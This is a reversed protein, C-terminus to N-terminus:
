IHIGKESLTQTSVLIYRFTKQSHRKLDANHTDRFTDWQEVPITQCGLSSTGSRGGRHLNIGFMGEEFYDGKTGDRKVRFRDHQRFASHPSSGYHVGPKYLWAGECLEAMGKESGTGWGKRYRSPDTNGNYSAFLTPSRIFIADDYVGRDNVGPKGMTDKFYGRVGLVLVEDSLGYMLGIIKNVTDLPLMPKNKPLLGM